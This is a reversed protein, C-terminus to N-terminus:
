GPPVWVPDIDSVPRLPGPPFPCRDARHDIPPLQVRVNGLPVLLGLILPLNSDTLFEIALGRIESVVLLDDVQCDLRQGLGLQKIVVGIVRVGEAEKAGKGGGHTNSGSLELRRDAANLNRDLTLIAVDPPDTGDVWQVVLWQRYIFGLYEPLRAVLVPREAHVKLGIPDCLVVGRWLFDTVLADRYLHRSGKDAWMGPAGKQQKRNWKRTRNEASAGNIRRRAPRCLM